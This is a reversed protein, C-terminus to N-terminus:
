GGQAAASPRSGYSLVSAGPARASILGLEEVLSIVAAASAAPTADTTDLRLEPDSPPEYPASVGTVDGITGAFAAAYLGKPDRNVCEQLPTAVHVEVFRTHEEALSRAHKRAAEYPSVASVGAVAGVRALWAAGWGLWAVNLDRDAHSFGLGPYLRARVSDGDLHEVLLGRRELQACVLVAITTKGAAPLGTLWVVFGPV